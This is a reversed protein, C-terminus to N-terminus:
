VWVGMWEMGNWKMGNWEGLRLPNGVNAPVLALAEHRERELGTHTFYKADVDM